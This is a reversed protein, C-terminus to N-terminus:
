KCAALAEGAVAVVAPWHPHALYQEAGVDGLEDIIPDFAGALRRLPEVENQRIVTGVREDPEELVCTDDFLVHIVEDLSDWADEPRADPGIWAREQHERDGLRELALLMMERMQPFRIM